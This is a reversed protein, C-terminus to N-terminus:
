CARLQCIWSAKTVVASSITGGFVKKLDDDTTNGGLNKVFQQKSIGGARDREQHRVFPGVFVQKDSLLM